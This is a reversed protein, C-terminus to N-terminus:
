STIIDVIENPKSVIYDARYEKLEKYGRFGWLVGVSDMEANKATLIDTKSDGIFLVDKPEMEMLKIIKFVASPNPKKPIDIREGYIDIFPIKAFHMDMLKKCYDTRKNSNVGMKIGLIKLKNLMEKIGDYPATKHYYKQDYIKLFLELGDNIAQEGVDKPFSNEILNRFGNGIKQKYSDYNHTKHGFHKLVENVSDSLDQITNLLTGDLDFIAGKYKSM